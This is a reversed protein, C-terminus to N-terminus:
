CAKQVYMCVYMCVREQTVGGGGGGGFFFFYIYIYIYTHIYIYMNIMPNLMLKVVLNQHRDPGFITVLGVM